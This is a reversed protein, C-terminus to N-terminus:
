YNNIKIKGDHEGEDLHPFDIYEIGHREGLTRMITDHINEIEGIKDLQTTSNKGYLAKQTRKWLIEKVLHPTWELEIGKALTAQITLGADNLAQAILEFNKHLAKNQANTRQM